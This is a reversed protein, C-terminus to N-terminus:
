KESGKKAAARPSIVSRTKKSREGRFHLTIGFKWKDLVPVPFIFAFFRRRCSLGNADEM